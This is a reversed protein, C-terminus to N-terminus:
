DRRLVQRRGAVPRDIVETGTPGLLVLTAAYTTDMRVLGFRDVKLETRSQGEVLRAQGDTPGELRGSCTWAATGGDREVTCSELRTAPIGAIVEERVWAGAGTPQGPFNRQVDRLVGEPDLLSAAGIAAQPPLDTARMADRAASKWAEVDVMEIAEGQPSMRISAPVTAVAHQLTIPWPDAPTPTASSWTMAATGEEWTGEAQETMFAWVADTRPVVRLTTISTVVADGNAAAVGVKYQRPGGADPLATPAGRPGCGVAVLILLSRM